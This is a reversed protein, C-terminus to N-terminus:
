CPQIFTKKRTLLQHTKAMDERPPLPLPARPTEKMFASIGNMLVEGEHGLYRRFTGGELVM